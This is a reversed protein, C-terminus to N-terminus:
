YQYRLSFFWNRGVQHYDATYYYNRDFLSKVGAQIKIGKRIPAEGILDATAYSESYPLCHSRM